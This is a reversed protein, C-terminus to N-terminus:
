HGLLSGRKAKENPGCLRWMVSPDTSSAMKGRCRCEMHVQWIVEKFIWWFLLFSALMNLCMVPFLETFYSWSTPTPFQAGPHHQLVFTEYAEIVFVYISDNKNRLFYPRFPGCFLDHMQFQESTFLYFSTFMKMDVQHVWAKWTLSLFSCFLM